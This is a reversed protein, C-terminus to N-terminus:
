GARDVWLAVTQRTVGAARAVAAKPVGADVAARVERRLADQADRAAQAAFTVTDLSAM